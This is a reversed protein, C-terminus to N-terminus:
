HFLQARQESSQAMTYDKLLQMCYELLAEDMHHVDEGQGVDRLLLCQSSVVWISASNKWGTSFEASVMCAECSLAKMTYLYGLVM